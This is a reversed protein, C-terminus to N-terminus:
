PLLPLPLLDTFSLAGTIKWGSRLPIVTIIMIVSLMLSSSAVASHAIFILTLVESAPDGRSSAKKKDGLVIERIWRRGWNSTLWKPQYWSQCIDGLSQVVSAHHLLSGSLRRPPLHGSNFPDVKSDWCHWKVLQTEQPQHRFKVSKTESGIFPVLLM